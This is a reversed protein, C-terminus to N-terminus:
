AAAKLELLRADHAALLSRYNRSLVDAVDGRLLKSLTPQPIGTREAIQMQTLGTDVLAQAIERPDM